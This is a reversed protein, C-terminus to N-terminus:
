LIGITQWYPGHEKNFYASMDIDPFFEEKKIGCHCCIYKCQTGMKGDKGYTRCEEILHLCHECM